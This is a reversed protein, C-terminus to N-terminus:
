NLVIGNRKPAMSNSPPFSDFLWALFDSHKNEDRHVGLIEMMSKTPYREKIRQVYPDNTFQHILAVAKEMINKIDDRNKEM